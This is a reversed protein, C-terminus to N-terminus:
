SAYNELLLLCLCLGLSTTVINSLYLIVHRCMSCFKATDWSFRTCGAHQECWYIYIYIYM